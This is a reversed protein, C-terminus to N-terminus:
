APSLRERVMAARALRRQDQDMEKGVVQQLHAPQVLLMLHNILKVSVSPILGVCAGLRLNSLLQMAEENGLLRAHRLVGLARFVQDEVTAHRKSMLSRRAHREYAVVQPIITEGLDRLIMGESKGLTTQNSLQYFDGVAESGEGYFGRVALNMDSAARKVKEIEGTLKLGPLHLMVSMRLGTGVNTPCATLHGFRDSYAFDLRKGLADDITSVENWADSLALGSRVVQLRLHDEENVMVAVRESPLSIGVGRPDESGAPKETGSRGRALHKSILHREVLLTRHIPPADHLTVWAMSAHLAHLAVRCRELVAGRQAANCRAAFPFEALNRALRVRSSLVVDASDGEGRLWETEAAYNLHPARADGKPKEVPKGKGSESKGAESKGAEPKGPEPRDREPRDPQDREPKDRDHASM